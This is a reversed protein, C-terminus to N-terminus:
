NSVHALPSIADGTLPSLRQLDTIKWGTDMKRWTLIWRTSVHQAYDLSLQNTSPSLSVTGNARFHSTATQGGPALKVNLDTVGLDEKVDVMKMGNRITERIVIEQPDVFEITEDINGAVCAAALDYVNKEVQESETVIMREVVFVVAGLLVCGVAGILYKRLPTKSYLGIFVATGMLCLVILQWSSETLWM